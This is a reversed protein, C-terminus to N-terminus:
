SLSALGEAASLNPNGACNIDGVTDYFTGLGTMALTLENVSAGLFAAKAGCM